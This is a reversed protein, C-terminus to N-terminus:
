TKKHMKFLRRLNQRMQCAIMADQLIVTKARDWPKKGSGPYIEIGKSRMHTVLMKTHFKSENDMVLLKLGNSKCWLVVEKDFVEKVM